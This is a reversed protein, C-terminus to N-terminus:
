LIWKYKHGTLRFLTIESVINQYKFLINHNVRQSVLTIILFCFYYSTYRGLIEKFKIYLKIELGWIFSSQGNRKLASFDSV